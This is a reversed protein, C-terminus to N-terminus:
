WGLMKRTAIATPKKSAMFAGKYDVIAAAKKANQERELYGAVDNIYEHQVISEIARPCHVARVHILADLADYDPANNLLLCVFTTGSRGHGGVCCTMVDGYIQKNLETWFQPIVDPAARDNWDIKLLRTKPYAVIYERLTECLESDGELMKQHGYYGGYLSLIDGADIVFEFDDKTAKAGAMNAVWLRLPGEERNFVAEPKTLDPKHACFDGYSSTVRSQTTSQQTTIQKTQTTSKTFDIIEHSLVFKTVTGDTRRITWSKLDELKFPFGTMLKGQEVASTTTQQQPQQAQM